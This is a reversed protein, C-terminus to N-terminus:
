SESLRGDSGLQFRTFVFGVRKRRTPHSPNRQAGIWVGAHPLLLVHQRRCPTSVYSNPYARWKQSDVKDSHNHPAKRRMKQMAHARNRM